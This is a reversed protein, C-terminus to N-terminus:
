GYRGRARGRGGWGGPPGGGPTGFDARCPELLEALGPAAEPPELPPQPARKPAGLLCFLATGVASFHVQVKSAYDPTGGKRDQMVMGHEGRGTATGQGILWKKPRGAERQDSIQNDFGLTGVACFHTQM